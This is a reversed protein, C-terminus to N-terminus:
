GSPGAFTGDGFHGRARGRSDARPHVAPQAEVRARMAEDADALAAASDNLRKKRETNQAEFADRGRRLESGSLELEAARELAAERAAALADRLTDIRGELRELEAKTETSAGQTAGDLAAGQANYAVILVNVEAHLEDHRQRALEYNRSTRAFDARLAELRELEATKWPTHDGLAERHASVRGDLTRREDDVFAEHTESYRRITGAQESTGERYDRALAELAAFARGAEQGLELHRRLAARVTAVAGLLETELEGIRGRPDSDDRNGLQAALLTVGANTDAIRQNLASARANFGDLISRHTQELAEREGILREQARTREADLRQAQDRYENDLREDYAVLHSEVSELMLYFVPDLAGEQAVSFSSGILLGAAVGARALLACAIRRGAQAHPQALISIGGRAPVNAYALVSAPRSRICM